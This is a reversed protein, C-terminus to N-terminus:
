DDAQEDVRALMREVATAYIEPLMGHERFDRDFERMAERLVKGIMRERPGPNPNRLPQKFM